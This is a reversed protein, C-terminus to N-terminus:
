TRWLAEFPRLSVYNKRKEEGGRCFLSNEGLIVIKVFCLFIHNQNFLYTPALSGRIKNRAGRTKPLLFRCVEIAYM